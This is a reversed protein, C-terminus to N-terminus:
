RAEQGSPQARRHMQRRDTPQQDIGIAILIVGADAGKAICERVEKSSESPGLTLVTVEGGLSEKTKVAEEVAIEDYFSTMYQFSGTDLGTGSVNIKAQADTAPVRKICAIIKM